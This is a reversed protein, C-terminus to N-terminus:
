LCHSAEMSVHGVHVGFDRSLDELLSKLECGDFRGAGLLLVFTPVLAWRRLTEFRFDM